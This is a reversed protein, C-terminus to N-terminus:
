LCMDELYRRLKNLEERKDREQHYEQKFLEQLQELGNQEFSKYIEGFSQASKTM